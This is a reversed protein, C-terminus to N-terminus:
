PIKNDIYLLPKPSKRKKPVLTTRETRGAHYTGRAETARIRVVSFPREDDTDDKM